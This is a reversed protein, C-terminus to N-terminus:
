FNKCKTRQALSISNTILKPLADLNNTSLTQIQTSAFPNFKLERNIEDTKEPQQLIFIPCLHSLNHISIALHVPATTKTGLIIVLPQKSEKLLHLVDETNHFTLLNYKNKLKSNIGEILSPIPHLFCIQTIKISEQNM